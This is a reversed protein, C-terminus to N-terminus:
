VGRWSTPVFRWTGSPHRRLSQCYAVTVQVGRYGPPALNWCSAPDVSVQDVSIAHPERLLVYDNGPWRGRDGIRLIDGDDDALLWERLRAPVAEKSVGPALVDVSHSSRVVSVGPQEHLQVVQNVIDWLRNEPVSATPEITIQWQRSSIAAVCSLEWHNELSTAVARLDGTPRSVGDPSSDFDLRAVDAGNYYGVVVRSWLRKPLIQRLDRRVSAGRGTAIGVALGESLLRRLEQAVDARPPATRTRADVLTGDYDFVVGAYKGNRLQRQYSALAQRWKGLDGRAELHSVSVGAKREIAAQDRDSM